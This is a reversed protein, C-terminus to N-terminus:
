MGNNILYQQTAANTGPLTGPTSPSVPVELQQPLTLSSSPNQARAVAAYAAVSFLACVVIVFTTLTTQEIRRIRMCVEMEHSSRCARALGGKVMRVPADIFSTDFRSTGKKTRRV